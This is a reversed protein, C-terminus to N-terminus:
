EAGVEPGFYRDRQVFEDEALQRLEGALFLSTAKV